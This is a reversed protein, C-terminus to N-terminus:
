NEKGTVESRNQEVASEEEEREKKFHETRKKRKCKWRMM